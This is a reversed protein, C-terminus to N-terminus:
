ILKFRKNQNFFHLAKIVHNNKKTMNNITEFKKENYMKTKKVNTAENVHVLIKMKSLYGRDVLDMMGIEYAVCNGFLELINIKGDGELTATYGHLTKPSFYQVVNKYSRHRAKHCEDVHINIFYKKSISNADILIKMSQWTSVIVNNLKFQDKQQGYFSGVKLGTEKEIRKRTQEILSITHVLILIKSKNDQQHQQLITQSMM